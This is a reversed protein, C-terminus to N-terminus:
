KHSSINNQFTKIVDNILNDKILMAFRLADKPDRRELMIGSQDLIHFIVSHSQLISGGLQSVVYDAVSFTSNNLNERNEPWEDSINTQNTGELWSFVEDHGGCFESRNAQLLSGLM